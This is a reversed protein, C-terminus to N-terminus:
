TTPTAPSPSESPATRVPPILAVVRRGEQIADVSPQAPRAPEGIEDLLWALTDRLVDTSTRPEHEDATGRSVVSVRGQDDAGFHTRAFAIAQERSTFTGVHEWPADPDHCNAATPLDVWAIREQEDVDVCQACLREDPTVHESTDAITPLGCKPCRWRSM